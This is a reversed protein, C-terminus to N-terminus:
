RRAARAPQAVAPLAVRRVPEHARGGQLLRLAPRERPALQVADLDRPVGIRGGGYVRWCARRRLAELDRRKGREAETEDQRM